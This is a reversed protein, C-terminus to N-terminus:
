RDKCTPVTWRRDKRWMEALRRKRRRAPRRVASRTGWRRCWGGGCRVHTRRGDREIACVHPQPAAPAAVSPRLVPRDGGGAQTRARCANGASRARLTAGSSHRPVRHVGDCETGTRWATSMGKGRRSLRPSLQTRHYTAQAGNDIVARCFPSAAATPSAVAVRQAMTVSQRSTGLFAAVTPALASTLARTTSQMRRRYPL